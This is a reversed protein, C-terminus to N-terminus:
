QGYRQMEEKADVLEKYAESGYDGFVAAGARQRLCDLADDLEQKSRDRICM